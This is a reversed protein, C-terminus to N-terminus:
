QKKEKKISFQKAYKEKAKQLCILNSYVTIAFSDVSVIDSNGFVQNAFCSLSYAVLADLDGETLKKSFLKNTEELKTTAELREETFIEQTNKINSHRFM